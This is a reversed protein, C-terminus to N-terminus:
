HSVQELGPFYRTMIGAVTNGDNASSLATNRQEFAFCAYIDELLAKLAVEREGTEMNDQELKTSVDVLNSVSNEIGEEAKKAM